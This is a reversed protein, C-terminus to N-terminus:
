GVGVLGKGGGGGDGDGCSTSPSSEPDSDSADTTDQGAVDDNSSRWLSRPGSGRGALRLANSMMDNELPNLKDPSNSSFPSSTLNMELSGIDPMIVFNSSIAFTFLKATRFFSQRTLRSPVLSPTLPGSVIQASINSSVGERTTTSTFFFAPSLSSYSSKQLLSSFGPICCRTCWITGTGFVGVM